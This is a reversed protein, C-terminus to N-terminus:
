SNPCSDPSPKTIWQRVLFGEFVKQDRSIPILVIKRSYEKYLYLYLLVCIVSCVIEFKCFILLCFIILAAKQSFGCKFFFFIQSFYFVEFIYVIFNMKLFFKKLVWTIIITLSAAAFYMKESSLILCM